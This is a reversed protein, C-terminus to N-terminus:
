AQQSSASVFSNIQELYQSKEAESLWAAQFANKAVDILTERSINLDNECRRFEEALTTNFMDPDDTNVTCHLGAEILQKLPYTEVSYGPAQTLLNSSPCVELTIASNILHQMLAKDEWCSIGHGIRSVGLDMAARISAPDPLEGAHATRELGMTEALQFVKKFLTAPYLHESGGIGVGIVDCERVENVARLIRETGEAGNDRVLDCILKVTTGSVQRIGKYIAETIGGVSLGQKAFDGPSYFVETYVINQAKQREAFRKAIFQFDAYTRLFQNKWSWASLFSPFCKFQLKNQVDDLTLPTDAYKQILSLLDEASIAGELHVHLEAKPLREYFPEPSTNM